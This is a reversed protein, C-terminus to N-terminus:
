PAREDKEEYHQERDQIVMRIEYDAVAVELIRGRRRERVLVEDGVAFLRYAARPGTNITTAYQLLYERSETELVLRHVHGYQIGSRVETVTALEYDDDALVPGALLCALAALATLQITTRM